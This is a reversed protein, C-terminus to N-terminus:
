YNQKTSNLVIFFNGSVQFNTGSRECVKECKIERGRNRLVLFNFYVFSYYLSIM